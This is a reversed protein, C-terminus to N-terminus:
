RLRKVFFASGSSGVVARYGGLRVRKISVTEGTRPIRRPAEVSQWAMGNAMNLDWRGPSTVSASVSRIATNVEDPTVLNEQTPKRTRAASLGFNRQGQARSAERDIIAVKGATRATELEGVTRDFCALRASMESIQRCTLVAELQQPARTQAHGYQPLVIAALLWYSAVRKM